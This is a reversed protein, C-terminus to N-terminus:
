YFRCTFMIKGCKVYIDHMNVHNVQMNVYVLKMDIYSNLMNIYVLKMDVYSNQVDLYIEQMNVYNDRMNVYINQMTVYHEQMNVQILEYNHQMNCRHHWILSKVWIFTPNEKFLNTVQMYVYNEQMYVYNDQMNVHNEQMNVYNIESTPASIHRWLSSMENLFTLNHGGSNRFDSDKLFCFILKKRPVYENLNFCRIPFNNSEWERLIM